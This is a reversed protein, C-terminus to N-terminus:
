SGTSKKNLFVDLTAQMTALIAYSSTVAENAEEKFKDPSIDRVKELTRIHDKFKIIAAQQTAINNDINEKDFINNM